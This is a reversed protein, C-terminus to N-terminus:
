RRRAWLGRRCRRGWGRGPGSRIRNSWGQDKRRGHQARSLSSQRVVRRGGAPSPPAFRRILATRWCRHSAVQEIYAQCKIGVTGITRASAGSPTRTAVAAESPSRAAPRRAQPFTGWAGPFPVVPGPPMIVGAGEPCSAPLCQRNRLAKRESLIGGAAPATRASEVLWKRDGRQAAGAGGERARSLCGGRLRGSGGRWRDGM